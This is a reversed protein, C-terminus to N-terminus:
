IHIFSILESRVNGEEKSGNQLMDDDDTGGVRNSLCCKKFDRM